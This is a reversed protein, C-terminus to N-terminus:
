SLLVHQMMLNVDGNYYALTQGYAQACAETKACIGGNQAPLHVQGAGCKGGKDAAVFNSKCAFLAALSPAPDPGMAMGMPPQSEVEKLLQDATKGSAKMEALVMDRTFPVGAAQSFKALQADTVGQDAMGERRGGRRPWLLWAAAALALVVVLLLTSTKM